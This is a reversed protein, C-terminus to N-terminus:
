LWRKRKRKGWHELARRIVNDCGFDVLFQQGDRELYAAALLQLRTVRLGLRPVWEAM